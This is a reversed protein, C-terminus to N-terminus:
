KTKCEVTYIKLSEKNGKGYITQWRFWCSVMGSTVIKILFSLSIIACSLASFTKEAVPLFYSGQSRM